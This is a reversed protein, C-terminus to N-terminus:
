TSALGYCALRVFAAEHMVSYERDPTHLTAHLMILWFGKKVCTARHTWVVSQSGSV